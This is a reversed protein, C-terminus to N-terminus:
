LTVASFLWTSEAVLLTVLILSDLLMALIRTLVPAAILATAPNDEKALVDTM